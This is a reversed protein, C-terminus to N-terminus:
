ELLGGDQVGAGYPPDVIALNFAKDPYGKLAALCDKNYFDIM